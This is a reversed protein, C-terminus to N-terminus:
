TVANAKPAVPTSATLKPATKSEGLPNVMDKPATMLDRAYQDHITTPTEGVAHKKQRKGGVMPGLMGKIEVLSKEAHEPNAGMGM